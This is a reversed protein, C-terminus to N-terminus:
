HLPNLFHQIMQEWTPSKERFIALGRFGTFRSLQIMLISQPLNFGLDISQCKTPNSQKPVPSNMANCGLIIAHPFEVAAKAIATLNRAPGATMAAAEMAMPRRPTRKCTAMTWTGRRDGTKMELLTEKNLSFFQIASTIRALRVFWCRCAARGCPITGKTKALSYPTWGSM